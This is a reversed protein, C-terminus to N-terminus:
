KKFQILGNLLAWDWIGSTSIKGTVKGLIRSGAVVEIVIIWVRKWSVVRFVFVLLSM